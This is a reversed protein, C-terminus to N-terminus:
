REPEIQLGEPPPLARSACALRGEGVGPAGLVSGVPGPAPQDDPGTTAANACQLQGEAARLVPALERRPGLCPQHQAPPGFRHLQQDVPHCHVASVQKIRGAAPAQRGAPPLAFGKLELQPQAARAVVVPRQHVAADLELRAIRGIRIPQQLGDALLQHGQPRGQRSGLNPALGTQMHQAVGMEIQGPEPGYGVGPLRGFAGEARGQRQHLAVRLQMEAMRGWREVGPELLVARRKIRPDHRSHRRTAEFGDVTRPHLGVAHQDAASRQQTLKLQTLLPTAPGERLQLVGQGPQGVAEPKAGTQRGDGPGRPHAPEAGVLEGPIGGIGKRMPQEAPAAAAATLHQRQHGRRDAGIGIRQGHLAVAQLPLLGGAQALGQPQRPHAIVAATGGGLHELLQREPLVLGPRTRGQCGLLVAAQALVQRAKLRPCPLQRHPAILEIQLQVAATGGAPGILFPVVAAEFAQQPLGFHGLQQGRSRGRSRSGGVPARQQKLLKVVNKGARRHRLHKLLGLGLPTRGAAPGSGLPVLGQLAPQAAAWSGVDWRDAGAALGPRRDLKLRQRRLAATHPQRGTGPVRGGSRGQGPLGTGATAVPDLQWRQRSHARHRQLALAGLRTRCPGRRFRRHVGFRQGPPAPPEVVAEDRKLQARSAQLLEAIAAAAGVQRRGHLQPAIAIGPLEPIGPIQSGIVGLLRQRDRPLGAQAPDFAAGEAGM